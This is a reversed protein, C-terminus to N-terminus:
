ALLELIQPNHNLLYQQREPEYSNWRKKDWAVLPLDTGSVPDKHFGHPFTLPEHCLPCKLAVDGHMLDARDTPNLLEVM